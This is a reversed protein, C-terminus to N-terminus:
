SLMNAAAIVVAGVLRIISMLENLQQEASVPTLSLVRVQTENSIM